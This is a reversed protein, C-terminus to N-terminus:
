LLQAAEVSIPDVAIDAQGVSERSDMPSPPERAESTAAHSSSPDRDVSYVIVNKSEESSSSSETSVMNPDGGLDVISPENPLM